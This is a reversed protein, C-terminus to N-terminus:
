LNEKTSGLVYRSAGGNKTIEEIPVELERSLLELLRPTCFGGQCRGAQARTRRKVADMNKAGMVRHIADLIEGESIGECRCVIRGYAPNEQILAGHEERSLTKPNLVGVRTAVFDEKASLNLKEKLQKAILMGIAPSSALGPSEIGACDFFGPADEAEGLIFEHKDEHARLGSFSCIVQNVPINKVIAGSKVFVDYIGDATISTDEKNDIDCATPGLLLNGHVTPTVLTGKGLRTPLQFITHSVHQGASQDLLCYEGRRPQIHIKKQSVMNHFRDAYVGAANVVCKTDIDGKNTCVRFGNKHKIVSTVETNMRFVVGNEAANEALAFTLTFPCIIGSTPAYLAAVAKPTANPEMEFLKENNIIKLEPVGNKVGNEFLKELTPLSDKDVCVVLSGIRHYPIDLENALEPMRANGLVNMKAMMSGAKADFGAHIIASNAKSTECCVDEHRDVVCASVNYRSLERAVSCGIVGAGIILVDIM